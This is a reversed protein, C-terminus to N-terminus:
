QKAPPAPAPKVLDAYEFDASEGEKIPILWVAINAKEVKTLHIALKKIGANADQKPPHPSGPLPAADMVEFRAGKPSLLKVVLRAKGATLTASRGDAALEVQAPTHMFWWIEGPAKLEVEDHVIVLARTFNEPNLMVLRMVSKADKAYAATLNMIGFSDGGPEFNTNLVKGAAKPDQDPEAGPNIVLTNHGEARLRYYTWRQKGFYEPLNYDDGGLDCAFRQGGSDLVFTGMDLHSHNTKNDGAKFAIFTADKDWGTRFGFVDAGRFYKYTPLPQPNKAFFPEGSYWLLDLPTPRKGM